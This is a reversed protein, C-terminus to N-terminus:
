SLRSQALNVARPQRGYTATVERPRRRIGTVASGLVVRGGGQAIQDALARAVLAFDIIGTSPSYLARLGVVHPELEALRGM